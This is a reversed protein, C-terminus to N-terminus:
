WESCVLGDENLKSSGKALIINGKEDEIYICFDNNTNLYNKFEEYSMAQIERLKDEDIVGDNVFSLRHEDLIIETLKQAENVQPQNAKNYVSIVLAIFAVILILTLEDIKLNSKSM